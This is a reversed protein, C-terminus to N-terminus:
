LIFNSIASLKQLAIVQCREKNTRGFISIYKKSEKKHSVEWPGNQQKRITEKQKQM